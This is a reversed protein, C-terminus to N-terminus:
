PGSILPVFRVAMLTEVHGSSWRRLLRGEDECAQKVPGVLRGGPALLEVLDQPLQDPAMATLSIADFPARDPAGRAGDGVRVEVTRYGQRTLSRAATAALQRHHEISVVEGACRSLIAAGYGSGTGIELVRETGSLELAATMVAVIHPASITQGAAIPLPSPEYARAALEAPLFRERPVTAMARLVREDGVGLARLEEVMRWRRIWAPGPDAAPNNVPARHARRRARDGGM